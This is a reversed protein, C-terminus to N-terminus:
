GAKTCFGARVWTILKYTLWITFCCLWFTFSGLIAGALGTVALMLILSKRSQMAQTWRCDAETFARAKKICVDYKSLFERYGSIEHESYLGADPHREYHQLRLVYNIWNNEFGLATRKLYEDFTQYADPGYWASPPGANLLASKYELRCQEYQRKSTVSKHIDFGVAAITCVIAVPVTARLLGRKLKTGKEAGSDRKENM